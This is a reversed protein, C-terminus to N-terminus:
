CNESATNIKAGTRKWDEVELLSLDLAEALRIGPLPDFRNDLAGDYYVCCKLYEPDM